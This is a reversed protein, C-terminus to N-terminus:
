TLPDHDHYPGDGQFKRVTERFAKKDNSNGDLAEIWFPISTKNVSIMQAVVQNLEPAHDKSYGTTIHIVRDGIVEAEGTYEGYVSFITSDLHAFRTEIGQAALIQSAESFFLETIGQEYLADLATGLSYDPFDASSLGERIRTEVPHSEYFRPTLYLPRGIFGMANLVM